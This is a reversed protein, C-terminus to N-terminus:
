KSTPRQVNSTPREGGGLWGGRFGAAGLGARLSPCRRSLRWPLGTRYNEIMLVIPGVNLGETQGAHWFGTPSHPDAFSPNITSQLGYPTTDGVGQNKLHRLTRFILEPAFPAASAVVWPSLTGDDPPDDPPGPEPVGRAAYDLFKVEKGHVERTAPGPGDSATLGWGADGYGVFGRPNEVAYAHQVVTASRSNAFYTTGRRRMYDDAVGRLDVFCQPLQHIFLPGAYLYKLGYQEVWRYTKCYAAYSAPPIPHSPSGLALLMLLLGENYGQIQTQLFGPEEDSDPADPRWGMVPTQRGGMMWDWEVRQFLKKSLRRIEGGDSGDGGFYEAAMLAGAILWSTDLSSLESQEARRGTKMDLFHYFFGRYGAADPADSQPLGDFTRLTTLVVQRAEDRKALGVDAAVAWCALGLGVAAISCPSGPKTGNPVLGTDRDTLNDFYAFAKRQLHGLLADNSGPETM